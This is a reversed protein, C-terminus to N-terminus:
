YLICVSTPASPGSIETNASEAERSAEEGLANQLQKMGPTPTRPAASTTLSAALRPGGRVAVRSFM